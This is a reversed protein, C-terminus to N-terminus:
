AKMLLSAEQGILPPAESEQWPNGKESATDM